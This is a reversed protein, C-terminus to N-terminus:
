NGVIVYYKTGETELVGTDTFETTAGGNAVSSNEIAWSDLPASPDLSSLVKYTTAGRSSNWTITVDNAAPRDAVVRVIEIPGTPDNPLLDTVPIGVRGADAIAIVDESHLATGFVCLDDLQGDFRRDSDSGIFWTQDAATYVKSVETDSVEDITQVLVGDIYIKGTFSSGDGTWSMAVHQWAGVSASAPPSDLGTSGGTGDPANDFRYDYALTTAGPNNIALGWNEPRTMFIGNYDSVLSTSDPNVWAMLTFANPNALKGIADAVQMDANGPLDLSSTGILPSAWAITGTGPGAQEPTGLPATDAAATGSGEDFNYYSILDGTITPLITSNADAPDSGLDVETGDSVGDDDSDRDLPDTISSHGTSSDLEDVDTLGDGDSDADLDVTLTGSASVTGSTSVTVDVPDDLVLSAFDAPVTIEVDYSIISGAQSPASITLTGNGSGLPGILPTEALNIAIPDIFDEALGTASGSITGQYLRLEHPALPFSSGTVSGPPLPTNLTAVLDEGDVLVTGVQIIFFVRGLDLEFSPDDDIYVPSERFSIAQVEAAFTVPNIELDFDCLLSGSITSTESDSTDIKIDVNGFDPIEAPVTGKATVGVDLTNVTADPPDLPLSAAGPFQFASALPPFAATLVLGLLLARPATSRSAGNQSEPHNLM